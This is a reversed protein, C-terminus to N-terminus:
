IPEDYEPACTFQYHDILEEHTEVPTLEERPILGVKVLDRSFEHFFNPDARAGSTLIWAYKRRIMAFIDRMQFQITADDGAANLVVALTLDLQSDTELHIKLDDMQILRVRTQNFADLAFNQIAVLFGCQMSAQDSVGKTGDSETSAAFLPVGTGRVLFIFKVPSTYAM